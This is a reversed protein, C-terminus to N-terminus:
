KSVGFRLKLETGPFCVDMLNLEECMSAIAKSRHESSLRALTVYLESKTAEIDASSKLASGILTRGEQDARAYHPRVLALLESEAQYAVMKICNVIHKRGRSLRVIQEGSVDKVAIREPIQKRKKKLSAIRKEIKQIRKELEEHAAKFDDITGKNKAFYEASAKGYEMHVKRLEAQPKALKKNIKLREPNPILKEAEEPEVAYDILSDLAFEEDMYKFFNEQRWREFMRYALVVAPLDLRSTVIHTQHKEDERLRTIQRLRLKGKLLRINKDNLNYSIKRGEIMKHVLVFKERPINKTSGKRYTLIDFGSDILKIFLRPSWGGRDFVITVRRKGVLKRIEELLVPLMKTLSANLEATMVFLPDGEKDNVWYDTTGPLAMRMRTVYTKMVRQQGHYVRVHGDIYLFGLARGHRKVREAALKEGFEEAKDYAALRTFKRRLTKVELMRDLGMIRGLEPPAYEKLGEPRKIRLLAMFLLALITTRLGYFAPGIHRYVKEATQFIGSEVLAPLALLVGAHPINKGSSFLPEADYLLGKRALMRDYLRNGPDDVTIKGPVSNQRGKEGKDSVYGNGPYDQNKTWRSVTAIGLNLLQAIERVKFGQHKMRRVDKQKVDSTSGRPRGDSCQLGKMGRSEYNRQRRRLTRESIGFARAVETQEAYGHEVISVMAYAETVKDGSKWTYVPLGAIHVAVKGGSKKLMCRGNIHVIGPASVIRLDLEPQEM